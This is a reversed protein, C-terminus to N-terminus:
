DFRYFGVERNNPSWWIATTQSLEEGYVWSGSGNKIRNKESGDTTVQKEGTGDFNAVWFNRDRYFAKLKGDPSVSCDAQRGRAAGLNPCGVVPGSTMETQQQELGGRGGRGGAQGGQGGARGAGAARGGAAPEAAPAAALTAKMTALDFRYNQGGLTYTFAKGGEEWRPNVAGSVFAGGQLEQSMKTFQDFGPMTRLRDQAGLPVLSFGVFAVFVPVLARFPIRM